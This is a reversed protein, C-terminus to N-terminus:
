ESQTENLSRRQLWIAPDVPQGHERIEFYLFPGKLSGTDGVLAIPQGGKVMDGQKVLISSCHAYVSTYGDSHDMIVLKGYGRFWDCYAIVADHIARVRGGMPAIIDIGSHRVYTTSDPNKSRGFPASVEGDVPWPLLGKMERFPVSGALLPQPQARQAEILEQLNRASAELDNIAAMYISKQERVRALLGERQENKMAVQLVRLRNTEAYLTDLDVHKQLTERRELYETRLSEARALSEAEKQALLSIIQRRTTMKAQPIDCLVVEVLTPERRNCLLRLLQELEERSNGYEEECRALDTQVKEMAARNAAIRKEGFKIERKLADIQKDRAELEELIARERQGLEEADAKSQELENELQKLEERYRTVESELTEQAFGVSGHPLAAFLVVALGVLANRVSLRNAVLALAPGIAFAVLFFGTPLQLSYGIRRSLLFATAALGAVGAASGCVGQAIGEVTLVRRIFRRSAGLMQLTRIEGQRATSALRAVNFIVTVFVITGFISTGAAFMAMDRRFRLYRELLLQEFGVDDVGEVANVQAAVQRIVSLDRRGPALRIVIAPGLVEDFRIAHLDLSEGVDSFLEEWLAQTTIIRAEGVQAISRIDTLARQIDREELGLSLFAVLEVRSEWRRLMTDVNLVVLAFAGLAFVAVAMIGAIAFGLTRERRFNRLGERLALIYGERLNM